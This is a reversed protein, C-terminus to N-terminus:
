AALETLINSDASYGVISRAQVKIDYYTGPTLSFIVDETLTIADDWLVWDAATSERYELKYDLIPSGGDYVPVNWVVGVQYATTVEPVNRLEQPATPVEAARIQITESSLSFGVSNRALVQFSYVTDATLPV